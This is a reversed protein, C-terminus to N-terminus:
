WWPYSDADEGDRPLAPTDDALLGLQSARVGAQFRSTAQLEEMLASIHRRCTRTAMGLRNAIADDKLGSTMLRLLSVKIDAFVRDYPADTDKFPTASSWLREFGRRLFQVLPRHTIIVSGSPKPGPPELPLIATRQDFILMRELAESTTRVEGGQQAIQNVYSRMGLNARTTHQYLMRRDVGRRVLVSDTHLSEALHSDSRPGGPQTTVLEENCSLIAANIEWRVKAPDAVVQIGTLHHVRLPTRALVESIRQLQRNNSEILHERAEIENVLPENALERALDPHVPTLIEADKDTLLKLRCLQDCAEAAEAASVGLEGAITTTNVCGRTVAHRYIAVGVDTLEAAQAALRSRTAVRAARGNRGEAWDAFAKPADIAGHSRSPEVKSAARARSVPDRM